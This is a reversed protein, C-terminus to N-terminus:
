KMVFLGVLLLVSWSLVCGQDLKFGESVQEIMEVQEKEHEVDEKEHTMNEKKMMKKGYGPM